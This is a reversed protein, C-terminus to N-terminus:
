ATLMGERTLAKPLIALSPLVMSSGPLAASTLLMIAVAM